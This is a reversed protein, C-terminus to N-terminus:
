RLTPRQPQQSSSLRAEVQTASLKSKSPIFDRAPLLAFSTVDFDFSLVVRRGSM